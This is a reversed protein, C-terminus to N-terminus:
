LYATAAQHLHIVEILQSDRREEYKGHELSGLGRTLGDADILGTEFLPSGAALISKLLPQGYLILANQVVEAFSERETPWIVNRSMGLAALRRRQLRKLERWDMPLAEGLAVVVPDAFPHLPWLNARLLSPASTELSLLTMSNVAAPPAIGVDGFEAVEAIRHGIWPLGGADEMRGSARHPYEDQSLAVMEDGGLGTVVTHAGCAAIQATMRAFPYHLPEEYPSIPKGCVRSCEPHLPLDVAADAVIDLPGFPVAARMEKRRQNQQERRPGAILLASTGLVGPFRQAARTAISGSDFGGTLHFVTREPDFRRVNLADDLTNIFAGLVDADSALKQPGAHLAPEPYRLYLHGGYYATSRETLRHIGTFLTDHSYRPRYLLLRAAERVNIARAYARLDAMDWSGYLTMDDNALYLPTTRCPGATVQAPEDVVTEVAVYDAPWQDVLAKSENYEAVTTTRVTADCVSRDAVRERVVLLTRRGDCVALQEVMPHHLPKIESSGDTTAYRDKIWQWSNDRYPTIRLTLV